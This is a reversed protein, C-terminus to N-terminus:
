KRRVIVTRRKQQKPSATEDKETHYYSQDFRISDQIPYHSWEPTSSVWCTEMGSANAWIVNEGDARSTDFEAYISHSCRSCEAQFPLRVNRTLTSRPTPFPM